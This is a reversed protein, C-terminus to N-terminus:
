DPVSGPTTPSPLAAGPLLRPLRPSEVKPSADQTPPLRSEAQREFAKDNTYGLPRVTGLTPLFTPDDTVLFDLIARPAETAAVLQEVFELRAFYDLGRLIAFAAEEIRWQRQPSAGRWIVLAFALAELRREPAPDRALAALKREETEAIQDATAGV